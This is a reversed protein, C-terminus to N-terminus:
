VLTIFLSIPMNVQISALVSYEIIVPLNNSLENLIGNRVTILANQDVCEM